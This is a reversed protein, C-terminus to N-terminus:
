HVFSGRKSRLSRMLNAGIALLPLGLLVVAYFAPTTYVLFNDLNEGDSWFLISAAAVALVTSWVVSRYDSLQFTEAVATVFVYLFLSLQLMLVMLVGAVYLSDLRQMFDGYRISKVVELVPYKTFTSQVGLVASVLLQAGVGTVTMVIGAIFVDRPFTRRPNKLATVFQLCLIMHLSFRWPIVAGQWVPHWGEALVPLLYVPHVNRLSMLSLGLTVLVAGPTIIEGIRGLGELGMYVAYGVPIIICLDIVKLPTAPAVTEELFLTSKRLVTAAAVFVFLAFGLATLRGLLPGLGKLLAGVLTENPCVRVFTWSLVYLGVAAFAFLAASIWSDRTVFQAVMYPLFIVGAAMVIWILIIILQTDSLQPKV